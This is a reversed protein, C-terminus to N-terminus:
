GTRTWTWTGAAPSSAPPRNVLTNGSCYWTGGGLPHGNVSASTGGLSGALQSVAMPGITQSVPSILHVTVTLGGYQLTGGLAPQWLGTTASGAPLRVKGTVRGGFRFSGTFTGASM